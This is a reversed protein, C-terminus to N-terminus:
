PYVRSEESKHGLAAFIRHLYINMIRETIKELLSQCLYSSDAIQELNISKLNVM